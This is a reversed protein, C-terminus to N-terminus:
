ISLHEKLWTLVEQDHGEPKVREFVHAINGAKDIVFTTRNAGMYKKGYMSKEGWVGYKETIAHDEDALLPFNLHFKEAFKTVDKEPDPSIGFVAIKAKDYDALADRFGCAEKTCGPTDARPYFYLVVAQKGAYDSLSIPKGTSSSTTFDPAKSGVTPLNSESM